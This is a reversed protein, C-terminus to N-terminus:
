IGFRAADPGGLIGEFLANVRTTHRNYDREFQAVSQLNQQQRYGLLSACVALEEEALPLWHTQADQVMQLKGTHM